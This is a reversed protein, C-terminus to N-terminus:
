RDRKGLRGRAQKPTMTKPSTQALRRKIERAQEDTLRPGGLNAAFDLIAEAAREQEHLPLKKVVAWADDMKNMALSLM